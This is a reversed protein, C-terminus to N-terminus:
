APQQEIKVPARLALVPPMDILSEIGALAKEGLMGRSMLLQLAYATLIDM